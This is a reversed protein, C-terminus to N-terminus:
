FMEFSQFLDLLKNSIKKRYHLQRSFHAKLVAGPQLANAYCQVMQYMFLSAPHYLSLTFLIFSM